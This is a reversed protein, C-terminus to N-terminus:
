NEEQLSVQSLSFAKGYGTKWKLVALDNNEMNGAVKPMQWQWFKFVSPYKSIQSLFTYSVSCNSM